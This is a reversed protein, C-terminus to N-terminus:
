SSWVPVTNLRQQQQQQVTSNGTVNPSNQSTVVVASIPIVLGSQPSSSSSHQQQNTNSNSNAPIIVIQGSGGSVPQGNNNGVGVTNAAILNSLVTDSSQSQTQQPQQSQPQLIGGGQQQSHQQQPQVTAAAVTGTLRSHELLNLSTGALHHQSVSPTTTISQPPSSTSTAVSSSSSSSASAAAVAALNLHNVNTLMTIQHQHQRNVLHQQQQQQHHTLHTQQQHQPLVSSAIVSAIDTSIPVVYETTAVNNKSTSMIATNSSPSHNGINLSSSSGSGNCSSKQAQAVVQQVVHVHAQKLLKDVMLTSGDGIEGIRGGGIGDVMEMAMATEAEAKEHSQQHRNLEQKTSCQFNCGPYICVSQGGGGVAEKQKQQKFHFTQKHHRLKDPRSYRKECGEIDCLYPKEGTHIMKHRNLDNRSISRYVCGTWECVYPKESPDKHVYLHRNLKYTNRFVKGCEPCARGSITIGGGGGVNHHSVTTNNGSSHHTSVIGSVTGFKLSKLDVSITASGGIGGSIGGRSLVHSQQHQIQKSFNNHNNNNNPHHHQQQLQQQNIAAQNQKAQMLVLRGIDAELEKDVLKSIKELYAYEQRLSETRRENARRQQCIELQIFQIFNDYLFSPDLEHEFSSFFKWSIEFRGSLSPFSFRLKYFLYIILLVLFTLDKIIQSSFQYVLMQNELQQQQQQQQQHIFNLEQQHQQQLRHQQHHHHQQQLQQSVSAQSADIHHTLYLQSSNQNNNSNNNNNDNNNNSGAPAPSASNLLQHHLEHHLHVSATRPMMDDKISGGVGAVSPSSNDSSIVQLNTGNLIVKATSGGGQKQSTLVHHLDKKLNNTSSLTPQLGVIETVLLDPTVDFIYEFNLHELLVKNYFQSLWLHVNKGKSTQITNTGMSNLSDNNSGILISTFKFFAKFYRNTNIIFDTLPQKNNHNFGTILEPAPPPVVTSFLSNNHNLHQQQQHHLHPYHQHDSSPSSSSTTNSTINNNTNSLTRKGYTRKPPTGTTKQLSTGNVITSSGPGNANAATAAALNADYIHRNIDNLIVLLHQQQNEDLLFSM